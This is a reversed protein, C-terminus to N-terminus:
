WPTMVEIGGLLICSLPADPFLFYQEHQPISATRYETEFYLAGGRGACMRVHVQVRVPIETQAESWGVRLLPQALADHSRLCSIM